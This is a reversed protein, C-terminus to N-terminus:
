DRLIGLLLNWVARWRDLASEDGGRKGHVTSGALDAVKLAALLRRMEIQPQEACNAPDLLANVLLTRLESHERASEILRHTIVSWQDRSIGHPKQNTPIGSGM